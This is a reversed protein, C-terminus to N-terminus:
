PFMWYRQWLYQHHDGGHKADDNVADDGDASEGGKAPSEDPVVRLHRSRACRYADVEAHDHEEIHHTEAM